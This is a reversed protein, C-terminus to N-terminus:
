VRWHTSGSYSRIPTILYFGGPEGSGWFAHNTEWISDDYEPVNKNCVYFREGKDILANLSKIDLTTIDVCLLVGVARIQSEELVQKYVRKEPFRQRLSWSLQMSTTFM